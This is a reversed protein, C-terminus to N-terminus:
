VEFLHRFAARMREGLLHLLTASLVLDVAVFAGGAVVVVLCWSLTSSGLADSCVVFAASAALTALGRNGANHAMRVFSRQEWHLADLPGVLLAVILPGVFVADDRFGVVAALLVAAEATSAHETPFLAFRNVC